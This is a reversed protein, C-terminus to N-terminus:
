LLDNTKKEHMLVSGSCVLYFDSDLAATEDDFTGVRYLSMDEPAFYVMTQDDHLMINFAREAVGDNVYVAPSTYTGAKQDFISYLNM